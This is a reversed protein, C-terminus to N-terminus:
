GSRKDRLLFCSLVDCPPQPSEDLSAVLSCTPEGRLPSLPRLETGPKMLHELRGIPLNAGISM